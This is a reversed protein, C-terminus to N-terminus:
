HDIHKTGDSYTYNGVEFRYSVIMGRFRSFLSEVEYSLEEPVLLASKTELLYRNLGKKNLHYYFRRKVKPYEQAPVRIDYLYLVEM